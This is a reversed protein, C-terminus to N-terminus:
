AGKGNDKEPMMAAAVLRAFERTDPRLRGAKIEKRIEAPTAGKDVMERLRRLMPGTWKAYVSNLIDEAEMDRWDKVKAATLREDDTADEGADDRAGKEPPTDKGKDEDKGDDGSAPKGRRLEAPAAAPKEAEEGEVQVAGSVLVKDGDEPKVQGFVEYLDSEKIHLGLEKTLKVYYDVLAENKACNPISCRMEPMPIGEITGYNLRVIAPILQANMVACVYNGGALVEDQQVSAHVKAQALSGGHEGTDSTLTQGLILKHCEREAMDCLVKQPINAGGAAPAILQVSDKEGTTVVDALVPKGALETELARKDDDNGVHWVRFPKGFIQSYELMWTGGWKFMGFPAVLSNLVANFLPHDPGQNNLAVLFKDQPFPEGDGVRNAGDRFLMLRDPKGNETSWGYFQPMVPLYGRPYWMEADHEWLIEHVQVGRLVGHYLSAIMEQFGQVWSGSEADSRRWLADNVLKAVEQAKPTPEEGEECYPMAKYTLTAIANQMTSVDKRLCSWERMMAAFLAQQQQIDGGTYSGKLWKLNRPNFDAVVPENFKSESNYRIFYDGAM